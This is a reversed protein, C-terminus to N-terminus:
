NGGGRSTDISLLEVEFTLVAGGPIGSRGQDGYAIKAPCVLRSKGGVKMRQLGETWGRIVGNLPFTAPQGRDVSSDFVSGDRLTGHYHVTVRDTAKPSAGTGARIETYILGSATKVAGPKGAEAKLFQTGRAEERKVAAALRAQAFAQIKPGYKQIDVHTKRELVSDTIGKIVIKLEAETLNLAALSQAVTLGIAYLTKEDETVPAAGTAQSRHKVVAPAPRGAAPSAVEEVAPSLTVGISTNRGARIPVAPYRVTSFGDLESTLIRTGPSLGLFRFQGQANTVQIKHASHGALTITVGPLGNGEEDTVTGYLNGSLAQAFVQVPGALLGVGLALFLALSGPILPKPRIPKM